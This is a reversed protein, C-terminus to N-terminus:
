LTQNQLAKIAQDVTALANGVFVSDNIKFVPRKLFTYDELIYHKYEAETLTNEHLGLSRYKMAKRSFLAEYSGALKYLLELENETIPTSKIERLELNSNTPIQDKIRKCTSCSALYFFSNNM